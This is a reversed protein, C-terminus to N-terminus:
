LCNQIKISLKGHLAKSALIEGTRNGAKRSQRYLSEAGKIDQETGRGHEKCLGLMWMAEGDGAKVREELLSVAEDVNKRANGYGSLKYFALRTKASEEGEEVASLVADYDLDDWKSECESISQSGGM